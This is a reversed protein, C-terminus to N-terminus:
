LNRRDMESCVADFLLIDGVSFCQTINICEDLQKYHEKLEKDSLKEAIKKSKGIEITRSVKKM